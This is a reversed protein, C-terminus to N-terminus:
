NGKEHIEVSAGSAISDTANRVVIDGQKLDGFVETQGNVVVGAKVDVWQAKGQRVRIM